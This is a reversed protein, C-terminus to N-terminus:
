TAPAPGTSARPRRLRGGAPRHRVPDPLEALVASAAVPGVGPVTRLLDRGAEKKLLAVARAISKHAACTTAAAPYHGAIGPSRAAAAALPLGSAPRM